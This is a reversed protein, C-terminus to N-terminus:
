IGRIAKINLKGDPNAAATVVPALVQNPKCMVEIIIPGITDLTMKLLEELHKTQSLLVYQIGYADTIKHLDPFSVVVLIM